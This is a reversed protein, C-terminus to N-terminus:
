IRLTDIRTVYLYKYGGQRFSEELVDERHGALAKAASESTFYMATGPVECENLDVTSLRYLTTPKRTKPTHKSM